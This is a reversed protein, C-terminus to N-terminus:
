LLNRGFRTIIPVEDGVLRYDALNHQTAKLVAFRLLHANVRGSVAVRPLPPRPAPSPKIWRRM